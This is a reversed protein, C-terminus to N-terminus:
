DNDNIKKYSRYTECCVNFSKKGYNIVRVEEGELISFHCDLCCDAEINFKRKVKDCDVKKVKTM